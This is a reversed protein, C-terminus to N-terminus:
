KRAEADRAMLRIFQPWSLKTVGMKKARADRMRNIEEFLDRPIGIQVYGNKSM